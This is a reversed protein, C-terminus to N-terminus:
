VPSQATTIHWHNYSNETHILFFLFELNAGKHQYFFRFKSCAAHIWLTMRKPTSMVPQNRSHWPTPFTKKTTQKTKKACWYMLIGFLLDYFQQHGHCDTMSGGAHHHMLLACMTMLHKSCCSLTKKKSWVKVRSLMKPISLAPKIM